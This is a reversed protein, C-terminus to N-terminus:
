VWRRPSRRPSLGEGSGYGTDSKHEPGSPGINRKSTHPGLEQRIQKLDNRLDSAHQYRQGREKQLCRNIVEELKVPVAPNLEHPPTATQYLVAERFTDRTGAGFAKKGTVVEYLVLGFCFLDTRADGKLGQVQEPSMYGLTGISAGERTLRIDPVQEPPLERPPEPHAETLHDDAAGERATTIAKALGFDLIKM